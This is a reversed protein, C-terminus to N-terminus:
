SYRDEIEGKSEDIKDQIHSLEDFRQETEGIKMSIYEFEKYLNMNKMKHVDFENEHVRRDIKNETQVQFIRLNKNQTKYEIIQEDIM